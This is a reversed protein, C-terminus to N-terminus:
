RTSKNPHAGSSNAVNASVHSSSGYERNKVSVSSSIKTVVFSVGPNGVSSSHLSTHSSPPCRIRQVVSDSAVITTRRSLVSMTYITSSRSPVVKPLTVHKEIFDSSSELSWIFFPLDPSLSSVLVSWATYICTFLICPLTARESSAARLSPIHAASNHISMARLLTALSDYTTFSERTYINFREVHRAVALPERRCLGLLNAM